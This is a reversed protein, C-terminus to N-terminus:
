KNLRRSKMLITDIELIESSTPMIERKTLANKIYEGADARNGTLPIAVGITTISRNSRPGSFVILVVVIIVLVVLTWILKKNM